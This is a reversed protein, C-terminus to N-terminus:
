IIIKELGDIDFEKLRGRNVYEETRFISCLFGEPIKYGFTKDLFAVVIITKKKLVSKINALLMKFTNEM